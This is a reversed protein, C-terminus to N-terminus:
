LSTSLANNLWYRYSHASAKGAAASRSKSVWDRRLVTEGSNVASTTSTRRRHVRVVLM